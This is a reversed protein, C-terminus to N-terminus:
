RSVQVSYLTLVMPSIRRHRTKAAMLNMSWFMKSKESRPIDTMRDPVKMSHLGGVNELITTWHTTNVYEKQLGNTELHLSSFPELMRPSSCISLSNSDQDGIGSHPVRKDKNSEAGEKTTQLLCTVMEELKRLRSQAELDRDGYDRKDRGLKEAASYTCSVEDGRKSCSECPAQRDCKLRITHHTLPEPRISEM